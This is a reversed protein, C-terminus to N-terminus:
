EDTFGESSEKILVNLNLNANIYYEWIDTPGCKDQTMNICFLSSISADPIIHYLVSLNNHLLSM